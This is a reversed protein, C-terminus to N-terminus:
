GGTGRDESTPGAMHPHLMERDVQWELFQVRLDEAMTRSIRM